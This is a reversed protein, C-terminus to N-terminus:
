GRLRGAPIEIFYARSSPSHISCSLHLIYPSGAMHGRGGSRSDRKLELPETTQIVIKVEARPTFFLVFMFMLAKLLILREIARVEAMRPATPPAAPPDLTKASPLCNRSRLLSM